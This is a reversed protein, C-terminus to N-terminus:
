VVGRRPATGEPLGTLRQAIDDLAQATTLDAAARRVGAIARCARALRDLAGRQGVVAARVLRVPMLPHWWGAQQATTM